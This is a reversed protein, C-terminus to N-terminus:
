LTATEPKAHGECLMKKEHPPFLIPMAHNAAGSPNKRPTAINQMDKFTRLVLIKELM